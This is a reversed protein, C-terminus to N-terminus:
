FAGYLKTKDFGCAECTGDKQLETTIGHNLCNICDGGHSDKKDAEEDIAIMVGRKKEEQVPTEPASPQDMIQEQEMKRAEVEANTPRGM